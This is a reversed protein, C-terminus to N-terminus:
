RRHNSRREYERWAMYGAFGALTVMAASFGGKKSMLTPLMAMASAGAVMNRDAALKRRQARRLLASAIRLGILTLVVLGFFGLGFYIAAAMPGIQEATWMFGAMVLFVLGFLGFIGALGYAISSVMIRRKLISVEGTTLLTLLRALM